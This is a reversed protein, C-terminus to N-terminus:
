APNMDTNWCWQMGTLAKQALIEGWCGTADGKLSRAATERLPTYVNAHWHRVLRQMQKWELAEEWNGCRLREPNPVYLELNIGIQQM